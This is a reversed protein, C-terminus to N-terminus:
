EFMELSNIKKKYSLNLDSRHARVMQKINIAIIFKLAHISKCPNNTSIGRMTGNVGSLHVNGDIAAIQTQAALITGTMTTM